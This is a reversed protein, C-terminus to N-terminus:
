KGSGWSIALERSYLSPTVNNIQVKYGLKVLKKRIDTVHRIPVSHFSIYRGFESEKKIENLIQDRLYNNSNRYNAQKLAQSAKM